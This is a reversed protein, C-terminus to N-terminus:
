SESGTLQPQVLLHFVGRNGTVLEGPEIPHKLHMILDAIVAAIEATMLGNDSSLAYHNLSGAAGKVQGASICIGLSTKKIDMMVPADAEEENADVIDSVAQAVEEVHRPRLLLKKDLKRWHTRLAVTVVVTSVVATVMVSWWLLPLTGMIGVLFVAVIVVLGNWQPESIGWFYPRAPDGRFFEIFFRGSSYIVLYWVLAEGPKGM